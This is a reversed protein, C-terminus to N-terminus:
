SVAYIDRISLDAYSGGGWGGGGWGWGGTQERDPQLNACMFSEEPVTQVSRM